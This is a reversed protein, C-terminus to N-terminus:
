GSSTFWEPNGYLTGSNNNATSDNAITGSGENLKWYGVLGNVVNHNRYINDIETASLARNYIHVESIIGSFRQSTRMWNSAGILTITTVDYNIDYNYSATAEEVGDVFIRMTPKDFVAVIHYWQNELEAASKNVSVSGRWDSEGQAVGRHLWLAINYSTINTWTGIWGSGEWTGVPKVQFAYGCVQTATYRANGVVAPEKSTTPTKLNIWAAITLASTPKLTANEGLDVDDDVGDFQLGYAPPTPSSQCSPLITIAIIITIAMTCVVIIRALKKKSM